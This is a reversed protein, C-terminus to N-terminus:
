RRSGGLHYSSCHQCRYAKVTIRHNRKNQNRAAKMAKEASDFKEKGVCAAMPDTDNAAPVVIM